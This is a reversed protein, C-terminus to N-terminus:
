GQAKENLLKQLEDMFTSIDKFERYVSAFRVYAVEDAQRLKDMVLEGIFNSSIEQDLSSMIINEIEDVIKEIQQVTFPRKNMSRMIGTQIKGRDYPELTGNRKHISLPITDLREYTTFRKRCSDCCRRRRVTSSEESARTDLVRTDGNGCFPCKM